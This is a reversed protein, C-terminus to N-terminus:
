RSWVRAAFVYKPCSRAICKECLLADEQWRVSLRVVTVTKRNDNTEKYDEEVGEYSADGDEDVEDDHNRIHVVPNWKWKVERAIAEFTALNESDIRRRENEREKM